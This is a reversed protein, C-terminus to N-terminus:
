RCLWLCVLRVHGAREVIQCCGVLFSPEAGKTPADLHREGMLFQVDLGNRPAKDLLIDNGERTLPPNWDQYVAVPDNSIRPRNGVIKLIAVRVAPREKIV